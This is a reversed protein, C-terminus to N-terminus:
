SRLRARPQEGHEGHQHRHGRAGLRVGQRGQLQLVPAAARRDNISFELNGYAIDAEQMLRLLQRREPDRLTSIQENFIMDGVATIIVDGAQERLLGTVRGEWDVKEPPEPPHIRRNYVSMSQDLTIPKPTPQQSWAWSAGVLGVLCGVVLRHLLTSRPVNM